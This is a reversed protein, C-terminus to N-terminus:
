YIIFIAISGGSELYRFDLDISTLSPLRSLPSLASASLFWPTNNMGLPFPGHQDDLPPLNQVHSLYGLGGDDVVYNFLEALCDDPLCESSYELPDLFSVIYLNRTTPLLKKFAEKQEPVSPPMATDSCNRMDLYIDSHNWSPLLPRYRTHGHLDFETNCEVLIRDAGANFIWEQISDLMGAIATTYECMARDSLVITLGALNVKWKNNKELQMLRTVQLTSLCRGRISQSLRSLNSVNFVPSQGDFRIEKLAPFNKAYDILEDRWDM